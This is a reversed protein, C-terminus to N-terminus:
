GAATRVGELFELVVRSFEAPREMSLMHATGPFVVKKAGPIRQALIDAVQRVSHTDLDGVVVLTPASIEHLRGIAPPKQSQPQGGTTHGRYTELIMRRVKERIRSDVRDEPQRPGDVWVKVERDALADFKKAEWLAELAPWLEREDEPEDTDQYGGVGAAVPILASVREPHDLTFAIAIQGGRSVGIIHARAIDLHDLLDAVDQANAFPVDETVSKGFGRTDYRITRYREAFVPFQDDWMRHDAVGAHILLLPHGSGAVEYYLRAGNTQLFGTDTM